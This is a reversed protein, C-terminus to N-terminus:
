RPPTAARASRGDVGAHRRGAHELTREARALGMPAPRPTKDAPPRNWLLGICAAAAGAVLGPGWRAFRSWRHTPRGTIQEFHRLARGEQGALERAFHDGLLRDFQEDNLQRM